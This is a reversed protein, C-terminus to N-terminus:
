TSTARTRPLRQTRSVPRGLRTTPRAIYYRWALAVPIYTFALRFLIAEMTQLAFFISFAVMLLYLILWIGGVRVCRRWVAGYGYGVLLCIGIAGWSFEAFLDAAFGPAAGYAVGGLDDDGLTLGANVEYRSMGVDEYKTPWLQRPIPRVLFLAALRKGWFYNKERSFETIVTVGYIFENSALSREAQDARRQNFHTSIEHIAQGPNSFLDSGLMFSERFTAMVLMLLGLVAGGGLFVLLSPRKGRALYWGFFLLSFIIFTPGRRGSLLAHMVLPAAFCVLALYQPWGARGQAIRFYVLGLAPLCWMVADRVYGSEASGGGKEVSYADFFGGVNHLNVAYALLAVGGFVLAARFSRNGLEAPGKVAPSQRSSKSSLASPLVCGFLLAVACAANFLQVSSFDQISYIGSTLLGSKHLEWPLYVYLFAVMPALFAAPHFIDRAVLLAWGFAGIAALAILATWLIFDNV